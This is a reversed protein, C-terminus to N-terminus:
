ESLQSCEFDPVIKLCLKQDGGFPIAETRPDYPFLQGIAQLALVNDGKVIAIAYDHTKEPPLFMLSARNNRIMYTAFPRGPDSTSVILAMANEPVGDPWDTFRVDVGMLSLPITMANETKDIVISPTVKSTSRIPIHFRESFAIRANYTGHQWRGADFQNDHRHLFRRGHETMLVPKPSLEDFTFSTEINVTLRGIESHIVLTQTTGAIVNISETKTELGRGAQFIQEGAPVTFAVGDSFRDNVDFQGDPGVFWINPSGTNPPREATVQVVGANLIFDHTLHQGKSVRVISQFPPVGRSLVFIGIDKDPPVEYM